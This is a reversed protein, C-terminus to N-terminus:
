RIVVQPLLCLDCPLVGVLHQCMGEEFAARFEDLVAAPGPVRFLGEM